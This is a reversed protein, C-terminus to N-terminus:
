TQRAQGLFAKKELATLENYHRVLRWMDLLLDNDHLLNISDGDLKGNESSLFVEQGEEDQLGHLQEVGSAVLMSMARYVEIEAEWGEVSQRCRAMSELYVEKSIQKIEVMLGNYRNPEILEKSEPNEEGWADLAKQVSVKQSVHNAKIVLM